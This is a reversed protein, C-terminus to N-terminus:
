YLKTGIGDGQLMVVAPTVTQRSFVDILRCLVLYSKRESEM